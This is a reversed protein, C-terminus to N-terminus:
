LVWFTFSFQLAWAIIFTGLGHGHNCHVIVALSSVTALPAVQLNLLSSTSAAKMLGWERQLQSLMDSSAVVNSTPGQFLGQVWVGLYGCYMKQNTLSSQPPNKEMQALCVKTWMKGPSELCYDSAQTILSHCCKIWMMAM